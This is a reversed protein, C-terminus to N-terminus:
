IEAALSKIENAENVINFTYSTKLINVVTPSAAIGTLLIENNKMFVIKSRIEEIWGKNLNSNFGLGGINFSYKKGNEKFNISCNDATLDIISNYKNLLSEVVDKREVYVENQDLDTKESMNEVIIIKKMAKFEEEDFGHTFTISEELKNMFEQITGNWKIGPQRNETPIAPLPKKRLNHILAIMTNELKEIVITPLDSDLDILSEFKTPIYRDVSLNIPMYDVFAHMANIYRDQGMGIDIIDSGSNQFIDDGKDTFPNSFTYVNDEVTTGFDSGELSYEMRPEEVTGGFDNGVFSPEMRPEEVTGGFNNEEFPPEMRPEEIPSTFNYDGFLGESKVEGVTSGFNYDGFLDESKAEGVSSGFDNGEFSSEMRPEEVKSGFNYDGFLDESKTTEVQQQDNIYSTFEAFPDEFMQGIQETNVTDDGFSNSNVSEEIADKAIEEQGNIIRRLEEGMSFDDLNFDNMM